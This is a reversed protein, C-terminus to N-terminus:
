EAAWYIFEGEEGPTQSLFSVREVTRGPEVLFLTCDEFSDDPPLKGETVDPCPGTEGGDGAFDFIVTPSILNGDGDEVSVRMTREVTADGTNVYTADVYHPVLSKEEPDFELGAAELEAVTGQRVATVTLNLTTADNTTADVHGVEVETGLAVADTGGGCSVLILAAATAVAAARHSV